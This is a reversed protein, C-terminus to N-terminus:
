SGVPDPDDDPYDADPDFMMPEANTVFVPSDIRKLNLIKVDLRENVEMMLRVYDTETVDVRAVQARTLIKLGVILIIAEEAESKTVDDTLMAALTKSTRQQLEKEAQQIWQAIIITMRDTAFVKQRGFLLSGFESDIMDQPEVGIEEGQTVPEKDGM